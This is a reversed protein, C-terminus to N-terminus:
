ANWAPATTGPATMSCWKVSRQCSPSIAIFRQFFWQGKEEWTPKNLAVVRASRSNLHEMFRKITGGKGAADRGEFLIVFRECADQAWLQVKLLEAQLAKLEIEYARRSMRTRYPYRGTEFARRIADATPPPAVPRRAAEAAVDKSVAADKM